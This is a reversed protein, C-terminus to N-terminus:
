GDELGRLLGALLRPLVGSLDDGLCTLPVRAFNIRCFGRNM